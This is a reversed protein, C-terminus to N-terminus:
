HELVAFFHGHVDRPKMGKYNSCLNQANSGIDIKLRTGDTFHLIVRESMHCKPGLDVTGFEWDEVTKGKCQEFAWAPQSQASITPKLKEEAM